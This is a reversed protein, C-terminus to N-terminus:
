GGHRRYGGPCRARTMSGTGSLSRTHSMCRGGRLCMMDRLSRRGCACRSRSLGSRSAAVRLAILAGAVFRALEATDAVVPDGPHGSVTLRDLALVVVAPAPFRDSGQGRVLHGRSRGDVASGGPRPHRVLDHHRAAAAPTRIQERLQLRVKADLASLPEDLLRVRPEIALARALAVRQQQGGSLHHPYQKAQDALGVMDLLKSARKRREASGM